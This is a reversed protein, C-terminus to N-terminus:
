PANYGGFWSRLIRWASQWMGPEPTPEQWENQVVISQRPANFFFIQAPDPHVMGLRRTAIFELEDMSYHRTILAQNAVNENRMHQLDRHAINVERRTEELIAYSFATGLGGAFILLVTFLMRLPIKYRRTDIREERRSTMDFKIDDNRSNQRDRRSGRSNNRNRQEM